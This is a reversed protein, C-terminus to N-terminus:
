VANKVRKESFVQDLAKCLRGVQKSAVGDPAYNTPGMGQGLAYAFETRRGLEVDLVPVLREELWPRLQKSIAERRDVQTLLAFSQLDERRQMAKEALKFTKLTSWLDPFGPRVPVVFIDSISLCGAMLRGYAGPADIVVREYSEALAHLDNEFGESMAIVPPADVGLQEATVKWDRSTGQRDLDVLLTRLGQQHWCTAVATSTVTKGAGGKESSFAVLM